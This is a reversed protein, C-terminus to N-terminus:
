PCKTKNGHTTMDTYCTGCLERNGSTGPPVCKCRVCCTGCARNCVNPRSHASCRTKCLGGCDIDQMLRRNGGRVILHDVPFRFEEDQEKEINVDSSVKALCVLLLLGMVILERLAM